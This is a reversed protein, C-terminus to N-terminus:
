TEQEKELRAIAAYVWARRLPNLHCTDNRTERFYLDPGGFPYDRDLGELVFMGEFKTRVKGYWASADSFSAIRRKSVLAYKGVSACLGWHRNFVPHEPAGAELWDRYGRLAELIIPLYM